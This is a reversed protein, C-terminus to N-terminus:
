DTPKKDADGDIQAAAKRQATLEQQQRLKEERKAQKARNREFRQQAYNPRRAM